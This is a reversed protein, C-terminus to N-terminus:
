DQAVYMTRRQAAGMVSSHQSTSLQGVVSNWYHLESAKDVCTKGDLRSPRTVCRGYRYHRPRFNNKESSQLVTTWASNYIPNRAFVSRRVFPSSDDVALGFDGTRGSPHKFAFALMVKWLRSQAYLGIYLPQQLPAFIHGPQM